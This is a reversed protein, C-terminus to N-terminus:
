LLANVYYLGLLFWDTFGSCVVRENDHIPSYWRLVCMFLELLQTTQKAINGPEQVSYKSLLYIPKYFLHGYCHDRNEVKNSFFNFNGAVIQQLMTM